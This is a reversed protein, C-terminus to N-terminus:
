PTSCCGQIVPIFVSVGFTIKNKKGKKKINCLVHLQPSLGISKMRAKKGEEKDSYLQIGVQNVTIGEAQTSRIIEWSVVTCFTPSSCCHLFYTHTRVSYPVSISTKVSICPPDQQLLEPLYKLQFLNSNSIKLSINRTQKQEAM